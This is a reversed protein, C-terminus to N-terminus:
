RSSNADGSAALVSAPYVCAFDTNVFPLLEHSEARLGWAAPHTVTTPVPPPILKGLEFREAMTLEIGNSSNTTNSTDVAPSRFIPDMLLRKKKKKKSGNEDREETAKLLAEDRKKEDILQEERESQRSLFWERYAGDFNDRYDRLLDSWHHLPKLRKVMKSM